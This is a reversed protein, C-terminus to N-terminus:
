VFSDSMSGHSYRASGIYHEIIAPTTMVDLNDDVDDDDDRDAERACICVCVCCM